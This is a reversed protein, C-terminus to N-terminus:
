SKKNKKTKELMEIVNKRKVMRGELYVYEDPNGKALLELEEIFEENNTEPITNNKLKQSAQKKTNELYTKIVTKEITPYCNFIIIYASIMPLFLIGLIGTVVLSVILNGSVSVIMFIIFSLFVFAFITKLHNAFGLFVLMVANKIMDGIKLEVSVTMTLFSFEFCLFFLTFILTLVFSVVIVTDAFGGRYFSYTIFLGISVFYIFVSNVFFIKWNEKIGKKFDNLPSIKKDATTIKKSVYFAGTFLPSMLPFVLFLLFASFQNTLYAALTFIGGFVALGLFLILNVIFATKLNDTYNLFFDSLSYKKNKPKVM